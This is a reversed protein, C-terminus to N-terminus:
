ALSTAWRSEFAEYSAACFLPDPRFQKNVFRGPHRNDWEGDRSFCRFSSVGRCPFDTESLQIASQSSLSGIRSDEESSSRM